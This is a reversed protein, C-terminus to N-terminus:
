RLKEARARYDAAKAKEAQGEAAIEPAMEAEATAAVFLQRILERSDQDM